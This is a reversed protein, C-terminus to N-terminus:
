DAAYSDPESAITAAAGSAQIARNVLRGFQERFRAESFRMANARCAEPAIPVAMAEFREVADVISSCTQEFYLVGTPTRQSGSGLIDVAGGRGFSIVPTGCAQVEVMSIGFDEEAAVVFARAGQMLRVLEAHPVPGRLSINAAGATAERVRKHEPGDGVIILRRNPMQVFAAAILDIRKYPVQRSAVLYYDDKQSRFAFRDVAVPPHIIEAERRYAKRVRRAIYTSNAVFMDVGAASRVEWQRLRSLVWRVYISKLGRTLGAQKLYQHQLDWAYRMPSHIYCVHVQDPGTIVGKAVAHNSSIVVDYASVDLQEVALPMFGLYHRFARRAFPLRQIFSTTVPRNGLFAREAEPMFDVIGFIDADPFLKLIQEVVRESGAYTEFWEHVIAVRPSAPDRAAAVAAIHTAHGSKGHNHM